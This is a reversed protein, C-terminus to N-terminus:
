RGGRVGIQLYTNILALAGYLTESISESNVRESTQSTMSFTM